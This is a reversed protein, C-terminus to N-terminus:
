DNACVTLSHSQGAVLEIVLVAIWYSKRNLIIHEEALYIASLGVETIDVHRMASTHTPCRKGELFTLAEVCVEGRGRMEMGVDKPTGLTSKLGVAGAITCLVALSWIALYANLTQRGGNRRLSDSRVRTPPHSLTVVLLALAFLPVLFTLSSSVAHLATPVNPAAMM